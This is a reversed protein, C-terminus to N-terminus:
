IIDFWDDRAITAGAALQSYIDAYREEEAGESWMMGELFFAMAESREWTKTKGYCTVVVLDAKKRAM